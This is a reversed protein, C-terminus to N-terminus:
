RLKRAEVIYKKVEEVLFPEDNSKLVIVKVVEAPDCRRALEGFAAELFSTAYGETGDLDVLLQAGKSVADKFRPLLLEELFQEGSFDGEERTRPGPTESFETAICLTIQPAM